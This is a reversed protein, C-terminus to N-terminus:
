SLKDSSLTRVMPQRFSDIGSMVDPQVPALVYSPPSPPPPSHLLDEMVLEGASAILKTEIARHELDLYLRKGV